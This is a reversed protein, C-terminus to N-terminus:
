SQLKLRDNYTVSARKDDLRTIVIGAQKLLAQEILPKAAEPSGSFRLTVGHTAGRVDSAIVLEQKTAAQYYDLVMDPPVNVFNINTTIKSTDQAFSPHCALPGLCVLMIILSPIKM